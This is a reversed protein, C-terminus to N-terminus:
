NAPTTTPTASSSLPAVRTAALAESPRPTGSPDHHLFCSVLGDDGAPLLSPSQVDCVGAIMDPCRPHFQCGSVKTFQGPVSGQIVELRGKRAAGLQPISRMLARTYPHKPNDFLEEVPAQEVVRGLYM